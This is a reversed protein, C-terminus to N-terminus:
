FISVLTVQTKSHDTKDHTDAPNRLPQHIGYTGCSLSFFKQKERGPSCIEKTPAKRSLLTPSVKM